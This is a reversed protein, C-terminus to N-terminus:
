AVPYPVPTSWDSKGKATLVKTRFLVTTGPTLGTVVTSSRRTSPLDIWTKGGDKSMQWRYTARDGAVPATVRASGSVSDRKVKSTHARSGSSRKASMGSSQIIALADELHSDAIKQVYSALLQLIRRVALRAADRATATGMTRSLTAAQAKEFAVLAAKVKALPPSPKPFWSNGTMSVVIAYGYTIFSSASRPEKLIVVYRTYSAKSPM